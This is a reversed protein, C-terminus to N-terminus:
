IFIIFNFLLFLYKLKENDVGEEVLNQINHKDSALPVCFILLFTNKSKFTDSVHRM